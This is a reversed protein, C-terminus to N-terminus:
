SLERRRLSRSERADERYIRARHITVTVKANRQTEDRKSECTVRIEGALKQEDCTQRRSNEYKEVDILNRATANVECM